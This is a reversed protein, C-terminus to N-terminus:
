KQGTEQAKSNPKITIAVRDALEPCDILLQLLKRLAEKKDM